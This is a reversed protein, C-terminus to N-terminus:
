RSRRIKTLASVDIQYQDFFGSPWNDIGGTETFSLESHTDSDADFFHIVAQSASLKKDEAIARRIGNLVHDSHTEIIVQVGSAAMTALFRGMQSQGAPHLHAEPNEVVLVSEKSATLGALVIPLAYTVGFGMNPARVWEGDPVRFQLAFTAATSFSEANVQVPRTIRSLWRETEVKLLLIDDLASDPSRREPNVKLNDLAYLLQASYEGRVGVELQSSPLANAGLIIRPGYREASIYQFNRDGAGLIAPVAQPRSVVNAYLSNEEGDFRWLFDRSSVDRLLIDVSDSTNWNRVDGFVGLELYFPGNLQITSETSISANRLLLLAHILSTKGSGNIGALVTLPSISFRDDSFRKFGRLQIFDIM